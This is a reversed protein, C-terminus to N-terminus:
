NKYGTAQGWQTSSSVSAPPSPASPLSSLFGSAYTAQPSSGLRTEMM